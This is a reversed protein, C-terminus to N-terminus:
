PTRSWIQDVPLILAGPGPLGAVQNVTSSQTAPICFIAVVREGSSTKPYTEKDTDWPPQPVVPSGTRMITGGGRTPFCPRSPENSCCTQNVGGKLPPTSSCTDGCTAGNGCADDQTQGPCRGTKTTTGTTLPLGIDLTGANETGLGGPLCDSSLPYLANSIPPNDSNVRVLGEITCSQGNSPGGDCTGQGGIVNGGGTCRPCVRSPPTTIVQSLLDITGTIEGTAINATGASLFNNKYRNIVCVPVGGAVLPLPPGFTFGNGTGQGTRACTDCIPDDTNNCNSLCLELKSGEIVPFNHSDGSFGNDLDTGTALVVQHLMNPGGDPNAPCVTPFTGDCGTSTGSCTAARTTDNPDCVLTYKDGDKRRPRGKAKTSLKLLCQGTAQGHKKAKATISVFSSCTSGTGPSLKLGKVSGRCKKPGAVPTTAKLKKLDGVACTEDAQNPCSALQFTCVGASYTCYPECCNLTTGDAVVTDPSSKLEALCENSQAMAHPVGAFSGVAALAFLFSAAVSSAGRKRRSSGQRM